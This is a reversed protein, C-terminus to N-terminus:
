RLPCGTITSSRAATRSRYGWRTSSRVLTPRRETAANGNTLPPCRRPARTAVKVSRVKVARSRLKAAVTAAIQACASVRARSNSASFRLEVRKLAVQKGPPEGVDLSHLDSNAVVGAPGPHLDAPVPEVDDRKGTPRYSEDDAVHLPM